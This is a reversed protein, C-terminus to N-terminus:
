EYLNVTFAERDKLDIALTYFGDKLDFSVWHDSSKAILCVFRLTEMKM